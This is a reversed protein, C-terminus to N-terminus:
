LVDKLLAWPHELAFLKDLLEAAASFAGGSYQSFSNGLRSLDVSDIWWTQVPDTQARTSEHLHLNLMTQGHKTRLWGIKPDVNQIMCKYDNVYLLMFDGYVHYVQAICASKHYLWDVESGMPAELTGKECNEMAAAICLATPRAMTAFVALAPQWQGAAELASSCCVVAVVFLAVVLLWLGGLGLILVVIVVVVVEVHHRKM